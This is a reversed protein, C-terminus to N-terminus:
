TLLYFEAQVRKRIITFIEKFSLWDSMAFVKDFRLVIRLNKKSVYFITLNGVGCM